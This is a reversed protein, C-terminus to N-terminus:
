ALRESSLADTYVLTPVKFLVVCDFAQLYELMQLEATEGPQSHHSFPM